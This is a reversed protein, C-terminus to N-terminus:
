HRWDAAVMEYEVEGYQDGEVFEPYEAFFTRVYRMGLREMVARSRDNVTMTKAWVRTLELEAFGVALLARVAETAYGKGWTAKRMRYGLEREGPEPASKLGFWGVFEGTVREFGLWRTGLTARVLAEVDARATPKGGTVYRMVAPDSDLEVLIDVDDLTSLRLLLRETELVGSMPAFDSLM